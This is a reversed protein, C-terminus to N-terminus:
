LERRLEDFIKELVAETEDFVENNWFRIVKFGKATLFKTRTTDYDTTENHQGGDLEIILNRSLCIFDVIYHEIAFQRKFKCDAVQRSRLRNWLLKEADTHNKRLNRALTKLHNRKTTM